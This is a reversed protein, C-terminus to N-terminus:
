SLLRRGSSSNSPDPTPSCPRLMGSAVLTHACRRFSRAGPWLAPTQRCVKSTPPHLRLSDHSVGAKGHNAKCEEACGRMGLRVSHNVLAGTQNGTVRTGCNLTACEDDSFSVNNRDAPPILHFRRGPRPMDIQGALRDDGCQVVDVDVDSVLPIHTPIDLVM